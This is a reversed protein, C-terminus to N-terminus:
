DAAALNVASYKGRDDVEIDFAVRDGENLAHFGAREVASIHVFCDAGGDDRCIFGFGKSPNFFKVNGTTREGTLQRRARAPRESQQQPGDLPLHEGTIKIDTASIRGNRDVLTFALTQGSALGELGAQEVASIHVFIDDGGDDRAVFGFGKSANFFKVSGTGEGIIQAPMQPRPGRSFGGGGRDGGGFGGRDGGGYGGGRGRDGGGFGGRDGGGYGGGRPAGYGGGYGGGRDGGGGASGYFDPEFDDRRGRGRREGKGGGRRERDFSMYKLCSAPGGCIKIALRESRVPAHNVSDACYGGVMPTCLAFIFIRSCFLVLHRSRVFQAAKLSRGM